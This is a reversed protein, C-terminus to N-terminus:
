IRPKRYEARLVLLGSAAILGMSALVILDPVDGWLALM